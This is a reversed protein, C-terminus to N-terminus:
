ETNRIIIKLSRSEWNRKEPLQFWGPIKLSHTTAQSCLHHCFIVLSVFIFWGFWVLSFVVFVLMQAWVFTFNDFIFSTIKLLCIYPLRFSAKACTCLFRFWEIVLSTKIGSKRWEANSNNIMWWNPGVWYYSIIVSECRCIQLTCACAINHVARRMGITLGVQYYLQQDLAIM